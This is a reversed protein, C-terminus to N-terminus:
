CIRIVQGGSVLTFEKEKFVKAYITGHEFMIDGDHEIFSLAVINGDKTFYPASCNEEEIFEICEITGDKYFYIETNQYMAFLTVTGGDQHDIFYDGPYYMNGTGDSETNWGIFKRGPATLTSEEFTYIAYGDMSEDKPVQGKGGNADFHLTYEWLRWVPYLSIGSTLTINDGPYYDIAGEGQSISWGICSLGKHTPVKAFLTETTEAPVIQQAFVTGDLDYYTITYGDLTWHAYVTIDGDYCWTSDSWYKCNLCNGSADYVQENDVDFWGIFTYNQRTPIDSNMTCYSGAGYQVNVYNSGTHSENYLNNGPNSLTGGNPDFTLKYKNGTWTATITRSSTVGTYSGSWGAFTYGTRSVSPPTASGNYSVTQSANGSTISGGNANFTVTYTPLASISFSVVASMTNNSLNDIGSLKASFYGTYASSSKNFNNSYSALLIQNTTSWGGGSSSTTKVSVSGYNTSCNANWDAYFNNSTDSISYKSWFYVRVNVTVYTTYNLLEYSIGIKGQRNTNSGQVVSGWQIDTYAM